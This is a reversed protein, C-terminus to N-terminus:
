LSESLMEHQEYGMARCAIKASQLVREKMSMRHHQEERATTADPGFVGYTSTFEFPQVARWIKVIERPALPIWNPISWMFSYSVVGPKAPDPNHASAVMLLTDAIFLKSDWHLVMSGPFHGGCMIATAGSNSLIPNHTDTLLKLDARPDATRNAWASDIESM